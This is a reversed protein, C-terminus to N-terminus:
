IFNIKPCKLLGLIKKDVAIHTGHNWHLCSMFIIHYLFYSDEKWLSYLPLNNNWILRGFPQQHNDESTFLGITRLCIFIQVIREFPIFNKPNRTMKTKLFHFPQHILLLWGELYFFYLIHFNRVWVEFQIVREFYIAPKISHVFKM